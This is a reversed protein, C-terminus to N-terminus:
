KANLRKSFIEIAADRYARSDRETGPKPPTAWWRPDNPLHELDEVLNADCAAICKPNPFEGCIEYCKDHHEYCRDASDTPPADGGPKGGCSYMGGSWCQGGWNGNTPGNLFANRGGDSNLWLTEDLGLPDVYQLPNNGVYIYTNIGGALGVPDSQLYRGIVPVYDRYYNYYLNAGNEVEWYQGAFMLRPEDSARGDGDPDIKTTVLGFASTLVRQYDIAGSAATTFKPWELNNTHLYRVQQSTFTTGSKTYTIFALPRGELWVYAGYKTVTGSTVVADVLLRGHDAFLYARGSNANSWLSVREGAGNYRRNMATRPRGGDTYPPALQLSAGAVSLTNGAADYTVGKSLRNSTALVGAGNANAPPATASLRNGNPDYTYTLTSGPM